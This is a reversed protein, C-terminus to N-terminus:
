YIHALSNAQRKKNFYFYIDIIFKIWNNERKTSLMIHAMRISLLYM